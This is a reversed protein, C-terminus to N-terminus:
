NRTSVEFTEVSHMWETVGKNLTSETTGIVLRVTRDHEVGTPNTAPDHPSSRKTSVAFETVGSVLVDPARTFSASASWSRTPSEAHSTSITTFGDRLRISLNFNRIPYGLGPTVLDKMYTLSSSTGSSSIWFYELTGDSQSARAPISGDPVGNATGDAGFDLLNVFSPSASPWSTWNGVVSPGAALLDSIYVDYRRLEMLGNDCPVPVLFSMGVWHPKPSPAGTTVFTGNEDRARLVRVVDLVVPSGTLAGDYPCRVFEAPLVKGRAIPAATGCRFEYGCFYNTSHTSLDPRTHFACSPSTCQRLSPCYFTFRDSEFDLASGATHLRSSTDVHGIESEEFLQTIASFSRRSATNADLSSVAKSAFDGGRDLMAVAGGMTLTFIGAAIAVEMLSHGRSRRLTRSRTM